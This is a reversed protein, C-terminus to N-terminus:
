CPPKDVDPSDPQAIKLPGSGIATSINPPRLRDNM